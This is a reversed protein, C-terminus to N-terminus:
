YMGDSKAILTEQIHRKLHPQIGSLKPDSEIAWRVHIGIDNVAYDDINLSPFTKLTIAIESEPRSTVLIRLNEGQLQCLTSLLPQRCSCEDLGDVVLYVEGFFGCM